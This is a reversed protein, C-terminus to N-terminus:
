VSTVSVEETESESYSDSSTSMYDDTNSLNLQPNNWLMHLPLSMYNYINSMNAKSMIKSFIYFTLFIM